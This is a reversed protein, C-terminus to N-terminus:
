ESLWLLLSANYKGIGIGNCINLMDKVGDYFCKIHYQTLFRTTNSSISFECIYPDVPLLLAGM